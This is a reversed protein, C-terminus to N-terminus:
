RVTFRRETTATPPTKTVPGFVDVEFARGVRNGCPDELRTDVTLTYDGPNWPGAFAVSRGDAAVKGTAQSGAVRVLRGALAFDLPKEFRVTVAERTADIQWKAPDIPADDPPGVAFTKKFGAKLPSGNEDEWAADVVLTYRKGEELVPGDEERPKLGRKVRGPDFLLTFRTGDPSWLEEGLELFPSFVPKGAADLLTLHRYVDGRSMPASFQVYFRLHNEPLTDATPYVGAVIATPNVAPKPVTLDTTHPVGDVITLQYTVGPTFPFRPTFRITNDLYATRGRVVTGEAGRVNVFLRGILINAVDESPIDPIVIASYDPSFRVDRWVTRAPPRSGAPKGALQNRLWDLGDLNDRLRDEADHDTHGIIGVPGRYGSDRIVRLLGLDNAGHGVPLIKRGTKDGDIVMGNLNLCLLHPQMAKLLEPFRTLHGHGHHLNYVLGVNPRGLQNVVALQNEPEGAWGGHNYLAVTHGDAAAADAVAALWDAAFRVKASQDGKGEPLMVWLQTRLRHKKLADLLFRTENTLGGPFWVATLQIGNATLAALERDFTPLHEARWDYAFKTFGLRKLMAARDEPSRKKADFPVVCWAVLNERAYIDAPPAALSLALLAPLM